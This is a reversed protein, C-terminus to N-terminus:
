GKPIVEMPLIVCKKVWAQPAYKADDRLCALQIKPICLQEFEGKTWQGDLAITAKIFTVLRKGRM